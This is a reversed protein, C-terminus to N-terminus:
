ESFINRTKLEQDSRSFLVTNVSWVFVYCQVLTCFCVIEQEELSEREDGARETERWINEKSASKVQTQFGWKTGWNGLQQHLNLNQLRIEVSLFAAKTQRLM